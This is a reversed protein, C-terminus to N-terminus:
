VRHGKAITCPSHRNSLRDLMLVLTEVLVFGRGPHLLHSVGLGILLAVSTNLLSIGLMRRASKWSLETHLFADVVSLFLLPVALLKIFQILVKGLDGLPAARPGLAVGVGVGLVAAILIRIVPSEPLFAKM